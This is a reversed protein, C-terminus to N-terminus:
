NIRALFSYIHPFDTEESVPFFELWLAIVRNSKIVWTFSGKEMMSLQFFFMLIDNEKTFTKIGLVILQCNQNRKKFPNNALKSYIVLSLGYSLDFSSQIKTFDAMNDITEHTCNYLLHELEYHILARSYRWILILM